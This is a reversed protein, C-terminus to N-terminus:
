CYRVVECCREQCKMEAEVACSAGCFLSSVDDDSLLGQMLDSNKFPM